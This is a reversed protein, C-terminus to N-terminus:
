NVFIRIRTWYIGNANNVEKTLYSEKGVQGDARKPFVDIKTM